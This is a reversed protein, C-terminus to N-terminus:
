GPFDTRAAGVDPMFITEGVFIADDIIYSVCAPTHDPTHLIKIESNGLDIIENDEFLSDLQSRDLPTDDYTNFIPVWFELVKTINSSVGIHGGLQNKLYQSATLHDTHVHIELIWSVDLKHKLMHFLKMLLQSPLAGLPLNIM